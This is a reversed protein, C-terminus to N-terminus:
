ISKNYGNKVEYKKRLQSDSMRSLQNKQKHTLNRKIISGNLVLSWGKRQPKLKFENM